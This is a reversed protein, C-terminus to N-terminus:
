QVIFKTDAFLEFLLHFGQNPRVMVFPAYDYFIRGSPSLETLEDICYTGGNIQVTGVSNHDLVLALVLYLGDFLTTLLAWCVPRFLEGRVFEM